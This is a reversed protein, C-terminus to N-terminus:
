QELTLGEMQDGYNEAAHEGEEESEEESLQDQQEKDDNHDEVEGDDHEDAAEPEELRMAPLVGPSQNRAQPDPHRLTDRPNFSSEKLPGGNSVACSGTREILEQTMVSEKDGKISTSDKRRNIFQDDLILSPIPTTLDEKKM